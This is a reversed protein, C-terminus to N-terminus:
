LCLSPLINTEDDGLILRWNEYVIYLFQLEHLIQATKIEM